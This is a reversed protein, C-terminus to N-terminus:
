KEQDPNETRSDEDQTKEDGSDGTSEEEGRFVNEQVTDKETTEEQGTQAAFAGLAPALFVAASLIWALFKRYNKGSTNKM